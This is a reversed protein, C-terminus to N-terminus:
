GKTIELEFTVTKKTTTSYFDDSKLEDDRFKLVRNFNSEFHYDGYINYAIVEITTLTDLKDLKLKIILGQVYTELIPNDTEKFVTKPIKIIGEDFDSYFYKEGFKVHGSNHVQSKDIFKITLTDTKNSRDYTKTIRDDKKIEKDSDGFSLYVKGKAIEYTGKGYWIQGDDTKFKHEFTKTNPYLYYKNSFLSADKQSFILTDQAFLQFGILLFLVPLSPNKM